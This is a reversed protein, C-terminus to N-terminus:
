TKWDDRGDEEYFVAFGILTRPFRPTATAICEFHLHRGTTGAEGTRGGSLLVDGVNADRGPYIRTVLASDM